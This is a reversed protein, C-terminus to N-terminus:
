AIASENNLEKLWKRALEKEKAFETEEGFCLFNEFDKTAQLLDGKVHWNFFGCYYLQYKPPETTAVLLLFDEIKAILDPIMPLKAAM